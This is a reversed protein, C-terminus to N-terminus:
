GYREKLSDFLRRGTETRFYEEYYDIFEAPEKEREKGSYMISQLITELKDMEKAFMAVETEQSRMEEILSELKQRQEGSIDNLLLDLREDEIQKKSDFEEDDPTYDPLYAMILDHALLMQATRGPDLGEEDALVMGLTAAGFSHSAVTDRPREVGMDKWGQREQHKIENIDEFFRLIEDTKM